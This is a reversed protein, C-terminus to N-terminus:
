KYKHEKEEKEGSTQKSSSHKCHLISIMDNSGYELKLLNGNSYSQLCTGFAVLKNYVVIDKPSFVFVFYIKDWIYM